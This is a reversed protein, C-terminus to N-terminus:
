PAPTPPTTEAAQAEQRRAEERCTVPRGGTPSSGTAQQASGVMEEPVDVMEPKESAGVTQRLGDLGRSTGGWGLGM